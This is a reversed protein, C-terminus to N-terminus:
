NFKGIGVSNRIKDIEEEYLQKCINAPILIELNDASWISGVIIGIINGRMDFVPGGSNGLNSAADVTMLIDKGFFPESRNLGSIIGATVTNFFDMGYPSGIVFIKEGLFLDNSDAFEAISTFEEEFFLLGCDNNPDVIWDVAKYCDGTITTITLNNADTIVHKATLVIHPGIIVGSGTWEDSVEVYVVSPSVKNIVSSLGYVIQNNTQDLQWQLDEIKNHLTFGGLALLCIVFGSLIRRVM